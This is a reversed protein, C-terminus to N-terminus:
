VGHAPAIETRPGCHDIIRSAAEKPGLRASDIVLESPLVPYAFADSDRLSRFFEPSVLKRFEARSPDAIRRSVTEWDCAIEIFRVRGGAAIITDNLRQPFDPAVTREPNFTFILSRGELAASRMVEIWIRERNEVFGPSGFPFVALLLDVTLHNHFLALGTRAAVERAITLKGSAPRGHLFLLQM